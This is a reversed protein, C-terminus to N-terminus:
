GRIGSDATELAGIADVLAGVVHYVSTAPHEGDIARGEADLHERWLGGGAPYRACLRALAAELAPRAGPLGARLRAALAQIRETQPWLRQTARVVRGGRDVEDVVGGDASLGHREAFAFLAEARARTDLAPEAAALARLLWVWEYHHGPEVSEGAAGSAPEFARGFHERLTGTRPDVFRRELLAHLDRAAERFRAQGSAADLALCAELLHMHPNQRRPSRVPTWDSSGEDFYGGCAPDRLAALREFTEDALTLPAREGAARAYEALALLAFAHVYLDKRRDLPSGDSALTFHFGGHRPDRCREVLFAYGDRASALWPGPVGLRAAHAFAWTQRAQVLVRKTPEPAPTRDARLRNHFGGRERDSGHQQWCSLLEALHSRLDAATAGV